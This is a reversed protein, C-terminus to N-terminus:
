KEIGRRGPNTSARGYTLRKEINPFLKLVQLDQGNRLVVETQTIKVIQADGFKEGLRVTQGSIIAESRGPAIMVFQLVPGGSSLSADGGDLGAPPRTPDILSEAVAGSAVLCSCLLLVGCHMVTNIPSSM